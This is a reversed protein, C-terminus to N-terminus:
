RTRARRSQRRSQCTATRWQWSHAPVRSATGDQSPGAGGPSVAPAIPANRSAAATASGPRAVWHDSIASLRARSINSAPRFKAGVPHRGATLDTPPGLDNRSGARRHSHPAVVTLRIAPMAGRYLPSKIWCSRAAIPSPESHVLM